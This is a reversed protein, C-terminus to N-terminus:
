EFSVYAAKPANIVAKSDLVVIGKATLAEARKKLRETLAEAAKADGPTLGAAEKVLADIDIVAIQAPVPAFMAGYYGSAGGALVAAALILIIKV